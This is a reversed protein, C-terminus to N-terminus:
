SCYTKMLMANSSDIVQPLVSIGACSMRMAKFFSKARFGLVLIDPRAQSYWTQLLLTMPSVALLLVSPRLSNDFLFALLLLSNVWSKIRFTKKFPSCTELWQLPVGNLNFISQLELNRECSNQQDSLEFKTM